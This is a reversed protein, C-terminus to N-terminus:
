GRSADLLVRAVQDPDDVMPSHGCGRLMVQRAGPLLRAARRRQYPPTMLDRQGWAITVPVGDDFGRVRYAAVPAPIRWPRWALQGFALTRGLPNGAVLGARDGLARAIAGAVRLSGVSYAAEAQTWLGVPSIATASRVAGARALEIAVGGGLSNGAVHPRELQVSRFWDALVAALKEPSPTEGEPLPPSDGMGPLDVAVVDREDALREVVPEWLPKELQRIVVLTPGRGRRVHALEVAAL